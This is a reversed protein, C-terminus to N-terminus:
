ACATKLITVSKAVNNSGILNHILNCSGLLCFHINPKVKATPENYTGEKRGGAKRWRRISEGRVVKSLKSTVATCADDGDDTEYGEEGGEV